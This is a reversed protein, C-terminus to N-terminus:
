TNEDSVQEDIGIRANLTSLLVMLTDMRPVKHGHEINVISQHSIGAEEALQRISLGRAHRLRRCALRVDEQNSLFKMM